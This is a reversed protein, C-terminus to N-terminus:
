NGFSNNNREGELICDIALTLAVFFESHEDTNTHLNYVDGWTLWEKKITGLLQDNCYISYDHDWFNGEIQFKGYTSEINIKKYFFTFEKKITAVIEGNMLVEFQPMFTLLKQKIFAVEEGEKNYLHLKNGLTFVEGQCFYVSNQEEDCIDYKDGISFIRQKIYLNM